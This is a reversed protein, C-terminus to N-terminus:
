FFLYKIMQKKFINVMQLLENLFEVKKNMMKEKHKKGSDKIGEM